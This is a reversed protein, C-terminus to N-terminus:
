FEGLGKDDKELGWARKLRGILEFGEEMITLDASFDTDFVYDFGLAKLAAVMQGTSITGPALGLEEGIAVRVAPATQAVMVQLHVFDWSNLMVCSDIMSLFHHCSLRSDRILKSKDTGASKVCFVRLNCSMLLFCMLQCTAAFLYCAKMHKAAHRTIQMGALM